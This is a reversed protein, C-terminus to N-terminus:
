AGLLKRLEVPLLKLTKAFEDLLGIDLHLLGTPEAGQFLEWRLINASRCSLHSESDGLSM